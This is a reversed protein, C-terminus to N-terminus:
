PPVPHLGSVHTVSEHPAQGASSSGGQGAPVAQVLGVSFRMNPRDLPRPIPRYRGHSRRPCRVPARDAPNAVALPVPQHARRTGAVRRSWSGGWWALLCCRSGHPAASRQSERLLYSTQPELSRSEGYFPRFLNVYCRSMPHITSITSSLKLDLVIASRDQDAERHTWRTSKPATSV